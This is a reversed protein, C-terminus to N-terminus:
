KRSKIRMWFGNEPEVSGSNIKYKLPYQTKACMELKYKSLLHFICAKCEMLAFRSAVCNRPGIGFPLYTGAVINGKNEDSFREPIFEDPNPFYKADRHLAQIPFMVVDKVLLPIIKGDGVDFDYPKNVIRDSVIFQPWMRMSESLVMDLYKMKQLIEYSLPKGDLTENIQQIERYLNQQIDSHVALDYALFSLTLSVTNFGGLLFLM